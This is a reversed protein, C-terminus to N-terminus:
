PTGVFPRGSIGAWEFFRLITGVAWMVFEFVVIWALISILTGIIPLQMLSFWAPLFLTTLGSWWAPLEDVTFNYGFLSAFIQIIAPLGALLALGYIKNMSAITLTIQVLIIM